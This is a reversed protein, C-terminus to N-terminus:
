RLTLTLPRSLGHFRISSNPTLERLPGLNVLPLTM